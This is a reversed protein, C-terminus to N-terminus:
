LWCYGLVHCSEKCTNSLALSHLMTNLRSLSFNRTSLTLYRPVMTVGSPVLGSGDLTFAMTSISGGCSLTPILRRNPISLKRAAYMGFIDSM